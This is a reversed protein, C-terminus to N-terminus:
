DNQLRYTLNLTGSAPLIPFADDARIELLFWIWFLADANRPFSALGRNDPLSGLPTFTPAHNTFPTGSVPQVMVYLRGNPDLPLTGSVGAIRLCRTTGVGFVTGGGGGGGPTTVRCTVRYLNSGGVAETPLFRASGGADLLALYAALGAVPYSTGGVSYFVAPGPASLDFRLDTADCDVRQALGLALFVLLGLARVM